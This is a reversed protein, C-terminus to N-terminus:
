AGRLSPMHPLPPLPGGNKVEAGSALASSSAGKAKVVPIFGEIVWVIVWVILVAATSSTLEM